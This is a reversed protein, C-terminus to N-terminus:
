HLDSRGAARRALEAAIEDGTFSTHVKGEQSLNLSGDGPAFFAHEIVSTPLHEIGNFVVTEQSSETEVPITVSSFGDGSLPRGALAAEMHAATVHDLHSLDTVHSLHPPLTGQSHDVSGPRDASNAM